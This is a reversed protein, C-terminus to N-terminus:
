EHVVIQCMFALFNSDNAQAIDTQWQRQSEGFFETDNANVDIFLPHTQHPLSNVWGPLQCFVFELVLVNVEGGVRFVQFGGM